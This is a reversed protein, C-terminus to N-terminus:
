NKAHFSECQSALKQFARQFGSLDFTVPEKYPNAVITMTKFKQMEKVLLHVNDGITQALNNSSGKFWKVIFPKTSNGDFYIELPLIVIGPTAKSEYEADNQIEYDSIFFQLKPESPNVCEVTFLNNSDQRLYMLKYKKPQGDKSRVTYNWSGIFFEEEVGALKNNKRNKLVFATAKKTLGELILDKNLPKGYEEISADIAKKCEHIVSKGIIEASTVGDDLNVGKQSICTNLDMEAFLLSPIFLSVFVILAYYRM